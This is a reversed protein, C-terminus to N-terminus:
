WRKPSYPEPRVDRPKVKEVEVHAVDARVAKVEWYFRQTPNGGAATRVTFTGGQVETAVYLPSWGGVPTLQVTRREKRTLAEFYAPLSVVAEGQALQAEGRYYVGIEPGELSSHTLVKREPDLPHRIEFNKQTATLTGNVHLTSSPAGTGIGVNGATTLVLVDFLQDGAQDRFFRIKQTYNDMAWSHQSGAGDSLDTRTGLKSYGNVYLINTLFDGNVHLNAGPITTGIGVRQMSPQITLPSQAHVPPVVMDATFLLITLVATFGVIALTRFRLTQSRGTAFLTEETFM